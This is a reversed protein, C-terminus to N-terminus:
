RKESESLNCPDYAAPLHLPQQKFLSSGSTESCESFILGCNVASPHQVLNRKINRMSLFRSLTYATQTGPEPVLHRNLNRMNAAARHMMAIAYSSPEGKRM